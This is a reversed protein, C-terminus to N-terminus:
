GHRQYSKSSKALINKLKQRAFALNSKSTGVSIQLMSSIEHHKYGDVVYLMFVTRYSTPLQQVCKLIEEEGLYSFVDPEIREDVFLTDISDHAVKMFKRYHDIATYIVIQRFWAKFPQDSEFKSISSFVKLFADNVVEIADNRNQSYRMAVSMAYNFYLEYLEKQAISDGKVCSAIVESEDKNRKRFLM